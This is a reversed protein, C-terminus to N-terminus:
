YQHVYKGTLVDVIACLVPQESLIQIFVSYKSYDAKVQTEVASLLQSCKTYSSVGHMHIDGQAESSIFGEEMIRKAFWTIGVCNVVAECILSKKKQITLLESSAAPSM